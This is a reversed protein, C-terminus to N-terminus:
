VMLTLPRNLWAEAADIDTFLALEVGGPPILAALKQLPRLVQENAVVVATRVNRTSPDSAVELAYEIAEQDFEKVQRLDYLNRTLRDSDLLHQLAFKRWHVLTSHQIDTFIYHMGGDPRRMVTYGAGPDPSWNLPKIDEM